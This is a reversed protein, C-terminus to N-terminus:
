GIQSFPLPFPGLNWFSVSSFHTLVFFLLSIWIIVFFYKSFSYKFLSLISSNRSATILSGFKLWSSTFWMLQYIVHFTISCYYDGVMSGLDDQFLIFLLAGGAKEHFLFPYFVILNMRHLCHKVWEL